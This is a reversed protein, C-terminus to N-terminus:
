FAITGGMVFNRNKRYPILEPLNEYDGNSIYSANIYLNNAYNFRFGLSFRDGNFDYVFRLNDNLPIM